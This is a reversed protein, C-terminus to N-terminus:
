ATGVGPSALAIGYRVLGGDDYPMAPTRVIYAISDVTIEQEMTFRQDVANMSLVRDFHPRDGIDDAEISSDVDYMGRLGVGGVIVSVGLPGRMMTALHRALM